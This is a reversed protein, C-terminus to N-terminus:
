SELCSRFGRVLQERNIHKGIFVLRNVREEDQKWLRDAEADFLMHMGQFVVRRPEGAFHLIGKMRFINPGETQLLMSLWANFAAPNLPRPEEIGVSSVGPYHEHDHHHHEHHAHEAYHRAQHLFEPEVDLKTQLDFARVNLINHLDVNANQARYIKALANMTRLRQELVLLAENDVLDTKNLIIVDAFAIQRQCEESDDIHLLVHKADVLTIVCDIRYKDQMENDMFFTQAVPVPDALGTTEILIADFKDKRKMLQALIRILDGRVTCCLCGNNMEFIEEDSRIVLSNDVGIEGFENEIVAIRKGHQESLIRNLLTTKGAGLFGTLVTVPIRRDVLGINDNEAISSTHQDDFTSEMCLRSFYQVFCFDSFSSFLEPLMIAPMDPLMALM